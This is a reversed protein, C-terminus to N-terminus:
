DKDKKSTLELIRARLQEAPLLLLKEITVGGTMEVRQLKPLVFESLKIILDFAKEPDEETMRELKEMLKPLSDEVMLQFAGRIEKTSKNPVGKRSSMKGGRSCHELPIAPKIANDTTKDGLKDGKKKIM